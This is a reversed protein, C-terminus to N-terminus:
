KKVPNTTPIEVLVYGRKAPCALGVGNKEDLAQEKKIQALTPVLKAKVRNGIFYLGGWRESFTAPNGDLTHMYMTTM